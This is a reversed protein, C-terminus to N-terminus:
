TEFENRSLLTLLFDVLHLINRSQTDDLDDLYRNKDPSVTRHSLPNRVGMYTGAFLYMLSRQESPNDAIQLVGDDDTFMQHMLDSGDLESYEDPAVETVREELIVGAKRCAEQYEEERYHPVCKDVIEGDHIRPADHVDGCMNRLQDFFSLLREGNRRDTEGNEGKEEHICIKPSMRSLPGISIMDGRAELIVEDIDEVENRKGDGAVTSYQADAVQIEIRRRMDDDRHLQEQVFEHIQGYQSSDELVIEYYARSYTTGFPDCDFAISHEEFLDNGTPYANIQTWLERTHNVSRDKSTFTIELTDLQM